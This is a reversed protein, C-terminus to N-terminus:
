QKRENNIIKEIKNLASIDSLDQERSALEKLKILQNISIVPINLDGASINVKNVDADNYEIPTDLLIDIIQYPIQPNYFSFVKMNKEKTWKDRNERKVFEMSQVPIKPKYGLQELVEILKILNEEKMEVMLDLDATMRPVGHLNVAVGGIVLYRVGKNNLSRFVNEYFM